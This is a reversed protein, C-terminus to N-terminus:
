RRRSACRTATCAARASWCGAGSADGGARREGARAGPEGPTGTGPRVLEVGIMLGKGRVDGVIPSDSSACGTSCSRASRRPTARCTTRRAPLAPQGAGRGRHDALRRVDLDLQGRSATWSRPRPRHGRGDVPRQRHGQRVHRHGPDHRGRRAGALGLLARRHPGLRDAGRRQDVPHRARAAGRRVRRAARRARSTFGGVGQIPEAIFAAVDGGAQDLVERLDAVCAAIFEGDALGPSRAATGSAATCTTPRSRRCRRRRGPGTAPSPSRPSRGATTATACRSSRTPGACRRRWCCRPTTPRPAPPPSSSRPTRSRRLGRRDARGAGGDAPEPVAHVHPHDARGARRGGQDGRAARARDDHHPHRRLLGPLPHGDADWVHRGEGREIEIPEDYYIALWSPCCPGRAPWCTM